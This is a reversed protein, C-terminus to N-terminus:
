DREGWITLKRIDRDHHPRIFVSVVYAVGFMILNAFTSVWFSDPMKQALSPLVKDAWPTRMLLWGAISLTTTVTAIIAALSEVRLTLFGVLFLSLLGGSVISLLTRQLNDLAESERSFHIACAMSIMVVSFLLSVLKGVWAYHRPDRDKKWLRQYFDTTITAATGNISSDLTSMASALLGTLVFGGIGAPVHTLIFRPFVQDETLGELGSKPVVNVFVYLCTGLFLFYTWTPVALCCGIVAARSAEKDSKAACYRQVTTQDTGLIHMLVLFEAMIYAWVTKDSLSFKFSGLDFKNDTWAVDFLEVFGGPLQSVIVPLCLLGGGILAVVQFVDTWIVAQLGGVVTYLSVLVGGSIIIWPMASDDVQLIAQIGLSVSYLVLGTRFFQYLVFSAAAYVRAWLGFRRELYEYASGLQARRYLPIFVIIAIAIGPIYSLHALGNHWNNPGFAFAPLALFTISSVITAMLSCGVVWGPMSRGALFYGEATQNRRSCVAGIVLLVVVGLGIVIQDGLRM